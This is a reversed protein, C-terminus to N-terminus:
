SLQNILLKRALNPDAKGQTSKMVQGVLFGIVSDKGQKFDNVAKDNNKIVEKVIKLLEDSDGMVELDVESIADELNNGKILAEKLVERSKSGNYKGSVVKNVVGVFKDWDIEFETIGVGRENLAPFVTSSFWNAIEKANEELEGNYRNQYINLVEEYSNAIEVEATLISIDYDSLGFKDKYRDEKESPLESKMDKIRDKVEKSIKIRPIDPEDFYRYDEATEKSRQYETIGKKANWGRTQQVLNDNDNIAKLQREIEYNLSSEVASISGINKVEVKPNLKKEGVPLIRGDKYKWDGKKQLSINPECRMQGKEMDADSIGLYRGIQRIREAYARAEKPDKIVPKTVIEMLPVGSKNYDILSFDQGTQPDVRHMTKAVDEEQHIRELEVVSEIWNKKKDLYRVKVEGDYCLPKNYQSIQYGKSLDPYFYHKRDFKVQDSIKCNTALGMLICYEIAKKNPVPLTGPMGLCVPCTQTNPEKEFYEASCSCFMKSNTKFQLHIELGIIVDYNKM